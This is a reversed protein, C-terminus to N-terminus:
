PTESRIEKLAELKALSQREEGTVPALGPAAPTLGPAAPGSPGPTGSM